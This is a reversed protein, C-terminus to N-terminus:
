LDVLQRLDQARVAPRAMIVNPLEAIRASPTFDALPDYPVSGMAPSVVLASHSVLNLTYGDPASRATLDAAVVGSAGPRNEVVIERGFARALAPQLIRAILDTAGSPPFGVLIRVPKAPYEQALASSVAASACLLARVITRLLITMFRQSQESNM